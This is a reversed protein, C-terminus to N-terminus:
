GSSDCIDEAEYGILESTDDLYIENCGVEETDLVENLKIDVRAPKVFEVVSGRNLACFDVSLPPDCTKPHLPPSLIQPVATLLLLNSEDRM